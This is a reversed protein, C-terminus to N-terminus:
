EKCKRRKRVEEIAQQAAIFEANKGFFRETLEMAKKYSAEACDWDHRQACLKGKVSLAAAYHVDTEPMSEFCIFAQELFDEALELDGAKLHIAGLNSLSVATEHAPMGHCRLWALAQTAMSKAADIDGQECKLLALNNMLSATIYSDPEMRKLAEEFLEAARDLDGSLRCTGASNLLLTAYAQTNDAGDMELLEMAEGFARTSEQYRSTSRYLGALENLVTVRHNGESRALEDKLYSEAADLDGSQYLTDLSTFFNKM